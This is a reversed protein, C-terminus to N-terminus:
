DNSVELIYFPFSGPLRSDDDYSQNILGTIQAACQNTLHSKGDVTHIMTVEKPDDYAYEVVTDQISCIKDIPIYICRNNVLTIKITVNM